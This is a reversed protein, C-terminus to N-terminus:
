TLTSKILPRNWDESPPLTDASSTSARIVLRAPLEIHRPPLSIESSRALFTEAATIGIQEFPQAVTTLSIDNPLVSINDDFGCLAVDEPVSLGLDLLRRCVNIAIHDNVCLIATPRQEHPLRFLSKFILWEIETWRGPATLINEPLPGDPGDAMAQRYGEVRDQVTNIAEVSTVFLVRQHGFSLVHKTAEYQARYNDVGVYDAQIGPVMRDILVIPIRRAVEQILERNRRYAYAYFVIGAFGYELAYRLYTAEREANETESSFRLDKKARDVNEQDPHIPGGLDLFVGHFGDQALRRNMGWFIRQQATVGQEEPDGHWMVLAVLRSGANNGQPVSAHSYDLQGPLPLSAASPLSFPKASLSSVVPRFRPRSVVLGEESLIDIARRVARRAVAFDRALERETPLWTGAPYQGSLIAQRIGTLLDAMMSGHLGVAPAPSTQPPAM